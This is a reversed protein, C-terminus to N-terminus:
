YLKFTITLEPLSIIDGDSLEMSENPNLKVGNLSTGNKSELDEIFYTGNHKIIQAHIRGINKSTIWEQLQAHRGIVFNDSLYVIDGNKNQLYADESLLATADDLYETDDSSLNKFKEVNTSVNKISTSTKKNKSSVDEKKQKTAKKKTSTTKDDKVIVKVKQKKAPDLLNKVIIIDILLVGLIGLGIQIISVGSLLFISLIIGIMIPQIVIAGIIRSTKYKLKEVTKPESNQKKDEVTKKVPVKPKHSRPQTKVEPKYPKIESPQRQPKVIEKEKLITQQPKPENYEHIKEKKNEFKNIFEVFEEISINRDLILKNADIMFEGSGSQVKGSMIVSTMIDSALETYKNNIDDNYTDMLPLNILKISLNSENIFICDKELVFNNSELLLDQCNKVINAIQNFIKRFTDINVETSKIYEELSKHGHVNYKLHTINNFVYKDVQALGRDGHNNIMNLQFDVIELNNFSIQLISQGNEEIHKKELLKVELSM